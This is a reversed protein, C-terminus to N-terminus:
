QALKRITPLHREISLALARFENRLGAPIAADPWTAMDALRQTLSLTDGITSHIATQGIERQEDAIQQLRATM